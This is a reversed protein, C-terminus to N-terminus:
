KWDIPRPNQCKSRALLYVGVRNSDLRRHLKKTVLRVASQFTGIKVRRTLSTSEVNFNESFEESVSGTLM